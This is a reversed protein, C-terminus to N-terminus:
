VGTRNQLDLGPFDVDEYPNNNNVDYYGEDEGHTLRNKDGVALTTGVGALAVAVLAVALGVAIMRASVRGNDKRGKSLHVHGDKDRELRIRMLRIFQAGGSIGSKGIQVLYILFSLPRRRM